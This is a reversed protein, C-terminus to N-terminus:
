HPLAGPGAGSASSKPPHFLLLLAAAAGLAAYCPVLFLGKFDTIGNKTFTEQILRPCISNAVLAGVGLIM